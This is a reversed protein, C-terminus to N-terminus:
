NCDALPIYVFDASPIADVGQKLMLPDDVLYEVTVGVQLMMIGSTDHTLVVKEPASINKLRINEGSEANAAATEIAREVQAM